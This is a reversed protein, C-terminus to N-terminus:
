VVEEAGPLVDLPISGYQGRVPWAGDAEWQYQWFASSPAFGEPIETLMRAAEAQIAIPLMGPSQEPVVHKIMQSFAGNTYTVTVIVSNPNDM